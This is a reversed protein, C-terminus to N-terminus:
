RSLEEESHLDGYLAYLMWTPDPNSSFAQRAKYMAEPIPLHQGLHADFFTKAFDVALATSVPALTGIYVAAGGEIFSWGFTTLGTLSFTASASSCSNVFVLSKPNLKLSLVHIPRLRGLLTNELKLYMDGSEEVIGHCLLHIIQAKKAMERLNVISVPVRDAGSFNTLVRYDRKASEVVEMFIPFEDKSSKVDCGLIYLLLKEDISGNIVAETRVRDRDVEKSSDGRVPVRVMVKDKNIPQGSSPDCALEWPVSDLDRDRIVWHIVSGSRLNSLITRIEPSLLDGAIQRGAGVLSMHLGELAEDRTKVGLTQRLGEPSGISRQITEIDTRLSKLADQVHRADFRAQSKGMPFLKPELSGETEEPILVHFEIQKDVEKSLSIQFTYGLPRVAGAEAPDRFISERIRELVIQGKNRSARMRVAISGILRFEDYLLLTVEGEGVDNTQVAFRAMESDENRPVKITRTGPTVDFEFSSAQVLVVAHPQGARIRIDIPRAEDDMKFVRLCFSLDGTSPQDERTRFDLETFRRIVETAPKKEPQHTITEAYELPESTKAKERPGFQSHSCLFRGKESDFVIGETAVDGVQIIDVVDNLLPNLRRLLTSAIKQVTVDRDRALISLFPMKEQWELGDLEVAIQYRVEPEKDFLLNYCLATAKTSNIVFTGRLTFENAGLVYANGRVATKLLNRVLLVRDHRSSSVLFQKLEFAEDISFGANRLSMKLFSDIM